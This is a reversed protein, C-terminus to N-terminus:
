VIFQPRWVRIEVRAIIRIRDIGGIIRFRYSAPTVVHSVCGVSFYEFKPCSVSKLNRM